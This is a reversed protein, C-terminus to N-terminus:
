RAGYNHASKEENRDTAPPPTPSLAAIRNYLEKDMNIELCQLVDNLQEMTRAGIIPATVAPHAAVWAVALAAPHVGLEDALDTFAQASEYYNQEGYRIEYMKNDVLRGQAPRKDRGYKGSLLGGGLPSYPMVALGESQAMPFIEVEAQRKVLNYMPQVCVPKAWGHKDCIGLAKSAQWAAFNSLAPYLIKGATVLDDLCRFTDELATQDDFRHLFFIDIRDTNLRKLSADVARTLHYRSLGRANPDQSTPFYAKSAIVVQDRCDKILKGLIVESQGKSYVNACDFVNIGVERCRRFIELALSDNVRDGFPMTGFVLSSIKLGTSSLFHTEV